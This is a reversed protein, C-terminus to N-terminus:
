SKFVIQDGIKTKSQDIAGQSLELVSQASHMWSSLRFPRFAKLEGVVHYTSSLFLVDIPFKMFFTHISSCPKIWLGFNNPMSKKGLLGKMRRLVTHAPEVHDAIVTNQTQNYASMM